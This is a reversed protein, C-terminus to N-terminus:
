WGSSAGGGGTDGGGFSGGGLGGGFGGRHRHGGLMSALFISNMMANPADDGFDTHKVTVRGCNDCIFVDKRIKHGNAAKYTDSSMKKLAHKGCYQCKKGRRNIYGPLLAMTVVALILFIYNLTNSNNQTKKEPKMTHALKSYVAKAGATMGANWDGNRFAPIMLRTQIRKCEIDPLLGEIGYGTTFRVKRQDKVFVILIGNDSEKKGIGWHRFLNHSFEFIDDEGISELMVAAAEIGTEKELRAFTADITDRAAASLIADPDSVYRNKDSIHVNPVDTVKYTRVNEQAAATPLLVAIFAIYALLHKM